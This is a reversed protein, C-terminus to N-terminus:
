VLGFMINLYIYYVWCNGFECNFFNSYKRFCSWIFLEGSDVCVFWFNMGLLLVWGWCFQMFIFWDWQGGGCWNSFEFLVFIKFFFMYWDFLRIFGLFYM